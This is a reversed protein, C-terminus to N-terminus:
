YILVRHNSRDGVFLRCGDYYLFHPSSLTNATATGGQNASSFNVASQGIFFDMPTSSNAPASNWIMIRHDSKNAVFLKGAFSAIGINEEMSTFTSTATWGGLTTDTAAGNSAPITNLVSVRDYGIESVFLKIGDSAIDIPSGFQGAGSSTMNPQGVVYDASAGNTTPISNYILVRNNGADAIFLKHKAKSKDFNM